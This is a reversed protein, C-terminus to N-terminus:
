AAMLQVRHQGAFPAITDVLATTYLKRAYPTHVTARRETDGIHARGLGTVVSGVARDVPLQQSPEARDPSSWALSKGVDIASRLRCREM